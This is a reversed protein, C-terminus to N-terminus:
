HQKTALATHRIRRTLLLGPVASLWLVTGSPEPVASISVSAQLPYRSSNTFWTAGAEDSNAWLGTFGAGTGESSETWSWASEGSGNSLVLWYSTGALLDVDTLSYTTASASETLLSFDAILASPILGSSDSGYLSLTSTGSVTIANLVVDLTVGSYSNDATFSAALWDSATALLSDASAQQTNDSLTTAASLSPASALCLACAIGLAVTHLPSRTRREHSSPSAPSM